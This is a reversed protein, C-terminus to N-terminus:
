ARPPKRGLKALAKLDPTSAMIEDLRRRDGLAFRSAAVSGAVPADASPAANSAGAAAAPWPAVSSPAAAATAASLGKRKSIKFLYTSLQQPTVGIGQDQLALVIQARTFGQAMATRIEPLLAEIRRSKSKPQGGTVKVLSERFGSM